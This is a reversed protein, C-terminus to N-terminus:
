FIPSSRIFQKAIKKLNKFCKRHIYFKERNWRIVKYDENEYISQNCVICTAISKREESKEEEKKKWKKFWNFVM